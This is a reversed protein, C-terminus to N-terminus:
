DGADFIRTQLGRKAAAGAFTGIFPAVIILFSFLGQLEFTMTLGLILGVVIVLVDFVAGMGVLILWMKSLSSDFGIIFSFFLLIIAIYEAQKLQSVLVVVFFTLILPSLLFWPRPKGLFILWFFFLLFSFFQLLLMREVIEQFPM